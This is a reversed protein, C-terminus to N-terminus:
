KRVGTLCEGDTLHSRQFFWTQEAAVQSCGACSFRGLNKVNGARWFVILLTDAQQVNFREVLGRAGESSRRERKSEVSQSAQEQLSKM